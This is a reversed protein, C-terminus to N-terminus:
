GNLAYFKELNSTIRRAALQQSEGEELETNVPQHLELRVRCKKDPIDYWAQKKGLAPPSCSIVVPVLKAGSRIAIAAAGRQFGCKSSVEVADSRTGEPFIVISRGLALEQKAKEVVDDRSTVLYNAWRICFSYPSFDYLYKKVVCSCHPFAAIFFLVDWLAPHNAVFVVSQSEDFSDFGDWDVYLLGTYDLIWLYFRVARSVIVRAQETSPYGFVLRRFPIILAGVILAGVVILGIALYIAIIRLFWAVFASPSATFSHTVSESEIM